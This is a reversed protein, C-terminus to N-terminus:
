PTGNGVCRDDPRDQRSQIRARGVRSGRRARLLPCRSPEALNYDAKLARARSVTEQSRGVSAAAALDIANAELIAPEAAVLADAMALLIANKKDTSLTTLAHAAARAQQGIYPLDTM